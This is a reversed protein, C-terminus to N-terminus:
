VFAYAGVIRRGWGEVTVGGRSNPRASGYHDVLKGTSFVAHRASAAVVAEYKHIEGPSLRKVYRELGLWRAGEKYSEGDNLSECARAYTMNRRGDNGELQARKAMAAYIV